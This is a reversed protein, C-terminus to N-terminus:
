PLALRARLTWHALNRRVLDLEAEILQRVFEQRAAPCLPARRPKSLHLTWGRADEICAGRSLPVGARASVLAAAEIGRFADGRGRPAHGDWSVAALCGERAAHVLPALGARRPLYRIGRARRDATFGRWLLPGLPRDAHALVRYGASALALLGRDTNGLHNLLIVGGRRLRSAAPTRLLPIDAHTANPGADPATMGLICTLRARSMQRALARAEAMPLGPALRRINHLHAERGPTDWGALVELAAPLGTVPRRLGALAGRVLLAAARYLGQSAHDLGRSGQM